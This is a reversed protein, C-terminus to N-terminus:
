YFKSKKYIYIYIYIYIIIIYIYIYLFYFFLEWPPYLLQNLALMTEHMNEHQRAEVQPKSWYLELVQPDHKPFGVHSPNEKAYQQVGAKWGRAKEQDVVGRVICVGRKRVQAEVDAPLRGGNAQIESFAVEPIARTGLEKLEALEKSLATDLRQWSDRLLKADPQLRDKLAAFQSPWEYTDGLAAVVSSIDGADAAAM